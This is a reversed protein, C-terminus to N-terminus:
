PLDYDQKFFRILMDKPTRDGAYDKQWIALFEHIAQEYKVKSDLTRMLSPLNQVADEASSLITSLGRYEDTFFTGNWITFAVSGASFPETYYGDLGEGFSITWKAKAILDLYEKFSIDEIEILRMQPFERHLVSLIEEKGLCQDYSYAIIDEKEEYPLPVIEKKIPPIVLHLPVGYLDRHCQTTYRKHATTQTISSFFDRMRDIVFFPPMLEVNQNMVNLSRNPIKLLYNETHLSLYDHLRPLYLEPLMVMLDQVNTFNTALQSFHYINMDNDFLSYKSLYQLVDPFTVAIVERGHLSKLERCIDYIGTISMLGGSIVDLETVLFVLLRETAGSQPYQYEFNKNQILMHVYSKYVGGDRGLKVEEIQKTFYFDPIRNAFLFLLPNTQCEPYDSNFRNLDFEKFPLNGKLWGIESYHVLPHITRKEDPTLYESLYWELDFLPQTFYYDYLECDDTGKYLRGEEAGHNIYHLLPCYEAALVDPNDVLYRKTSFLSSPNNGMRWGENIYHEFAMTESIGYQEAYYGRDFLDIEKDQQVQRNFFRM